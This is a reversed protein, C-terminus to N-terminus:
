QLFIGIGDQCVILAACLEVNCQCGAIDEGEWRM